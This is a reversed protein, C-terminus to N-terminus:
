QSSCQPHKRVSHFNMPPQPTGFDMRAKRVDARKAKQNAVKKEKKAKAFAWDHESLAAQHVLSDTWCAVYLRCYRFFDIWPPEQHSLRLYLCSQTGMNTHTGEPTM